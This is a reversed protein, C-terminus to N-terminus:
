DWIEQPNENMRKMHEEDNSKHLALHVISQLDM